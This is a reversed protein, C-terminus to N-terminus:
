TGSRRSPALGVMSPTDDIPQGALMAPMGHFHGLVLLRQQEEGLLQDGIGATGAPLAAAKRRMELDARLRPLRDRDADAEVTDGMGREPKEAALGAARCGNGDIALGNM